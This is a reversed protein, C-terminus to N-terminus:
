IYITSGRCGVFELMRRLIPFCNSVVNHMESLCQEAVVYQVFLNLFLKEILSVEHNLSPLRHEIPLLLAENVDM